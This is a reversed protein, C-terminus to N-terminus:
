SINVDLFKLREKIDRMQLLTNENYSGPNLGLFMALSENSRTPAVMGPINSSHSRLQDTTLHHQDSEIASIYQDKICHPLKDVSLGVSKIIALFSDASGSSAVLLMQARRIAEEEQKEKETDAGDLEYRFPSISRYFSLLPFSM